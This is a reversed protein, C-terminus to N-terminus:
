ITDEEYEAWGTTTEHVRVKELRLGNSAPPHLGMVKRAVGDFFINAMVEATPSCVLEVIKKCPIAGYEVRLKHSLILTHDFAAKIEEVADRLHGFDIVMGDGDLCKSTLFLEVVYSHGHISDSCDKSFARDLQHAAEFRFQKRIRYM